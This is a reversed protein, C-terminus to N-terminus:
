KKTANMAAVIAAALEPTDVLGILKGDLYLTRYVSSRGARWGVDEPAPTTPTTPSPTVVPAPPAPPPLVDALTTAELINAHFITADPVITKERYLGVKLYVDLPAFMTLAPTVPLVEKGDLFLHVFGRAKDWSWRAHLIFRLWRDRVLPASWLAPSKWPENKVPNLNLEMRDGNLAFEVPPSNGETTGDQRYSQHWQFFVQWDGTKTPFQGPFLVSFATFSELGDKWHHDDLFLECRPGSTGAKPPYDNQKVTSRIAKGGEVGAADVIAIRSARDVGPVIELGSFSGPIGKSLDAKWIIAM